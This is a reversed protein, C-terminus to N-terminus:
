GPLQPQGCPVRAPSAPRAAQRRITRPFPLHVREYGGFRAPHRELITRVGALRFAPLDEELHVRGSDASRVVPQIEALMRERVERHDLPVLEASSHALEPRVAAAAHADAVPDGNLRQDAAPVAIRAADAAVVAARFEFEEPHVPGSAKLLFEDDVLAEDVPDAVQRRVDGRECLRHRDSPAPGM